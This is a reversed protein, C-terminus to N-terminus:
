GGDREIAATKTNPIHAKYPSIWVNMTPVDDEEEDKPEPRAGRGYHFQRKM